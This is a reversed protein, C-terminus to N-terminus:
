DSTINEPGFFARMHVIRGQDNFRMVDIPRVAMRRGSVPFSVRFAFAAENQVARVAGELEVELELAVSGAYFARIDAAGCKPTSGVPDEVVADDAYLAMIADLDRANLAAVYRQVVARMQEPTVM